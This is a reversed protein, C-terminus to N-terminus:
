KSEKTVQNVTGDANFIRIENSKQKTKTSKETKPKVDKPM